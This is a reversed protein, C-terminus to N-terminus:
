IKLLAKATKKPGKGRRAAQLEDIHERHEISCKQINERYKLKERHPGTDALMPIERAGVKMQHLNSM